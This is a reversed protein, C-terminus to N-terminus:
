FGHRIVEIYSNQQIAMPLASFARIQPIDIGTARNFLVEGTVVVTGTPILSVGLVLPSEDSVTSSVASDVDSGSFITQAAAFWGVGSTHAFQLTLNTASAATNQVIFFFRMRFFGTGPFDQNFVVSAPTAASVPVSFASSLRRFMAPASIGMAQFDTTQLILAPGVNNGGLRINSAGAFALGTGIEINKTFGAATVQTGINFDVNANPPGQLTFLTTSPISVVPSVVGVATNGEILVQNTGSIRVSNALPAPAPGGSSAVVGTSASTILVDGEPSSGLAGIAISGGWFSLASILGTATAIFVGGTGSSTIDILGPGTSSIQLNGATTTLASPNAGNGLLDFQGGSQNLNGSVTTPGATPGVPLVKVPNTMDYGSRGAKFGQLQFSVDGLISRALLDRGVDTLTSIITDTPDLFPM